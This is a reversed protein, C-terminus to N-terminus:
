LENASVLFGRWVGYMLSLDEEREPRIIQKPPGDFELPVKRAGRTVGVLLLGMAKSYYPGKGKFYLPNNLWRDM